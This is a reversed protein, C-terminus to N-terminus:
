LQAGTGIPATEIWAQGSVGLQRDRWPTQASERRSSVSLSRRSAQSRAARPQPCPSASFLSFHVFVERKADSDCFQIGRAPLDFGGEVQPKVLAIGNRNMSESARRMPYNVVDRDEVPFTRGEKVVRQKFFQPKIWLNEHFVNARSFCEEFMRFFVRAIRKRKRFFSCRVNEVGGNFTVTPEIM